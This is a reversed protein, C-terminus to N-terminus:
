SALFFPPIKMVDLLYFILGFVLDYGFLLGATLFMFATVVKTSGVLERRSPWNVKKMEGDTNILFEAHRPRNILWWAIACLVLTIAALVAYLIWNDRSLGTWVPLQRYLFQIAFLIVLGAGLGTGLRTWFGQGQKYPTFFGGARDDPTRKDATATAM